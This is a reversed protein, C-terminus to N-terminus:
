EEAFAGYDLMNKLYGLIQDKTYKGKNQMFYFGLYVFGGTLFKSLISVPVRYEVNGTQQQLFDEVYDNITQLMLMSLKDNNNHSMFSYFDQEHEQIFTLCLDAIKLYLQKPSTYAYNKLGEDLIIEKFDQMISRMLHYKDEFYKYFTARTIMAHECIDTVSIDNFNHTRLLELLSQSILKRTRLVQKSESM